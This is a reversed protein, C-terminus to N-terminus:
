LAKIQNIEDQIESIQEDFDKKQSAINEVKRKRVEVIAEELDELHIEHEEIIQRYFKVGKKNIKTM